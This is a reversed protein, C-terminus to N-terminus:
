TTICKVKSNCRDEKGHQSASIFHAFINVVWTTKDLSHSHKLQKCTLSGDTVVNAVTRNHIVIKRAYACSGKQTGINNDGKETM